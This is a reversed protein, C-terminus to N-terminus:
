ALLSRYLGATRAAIASWTFHAEVRARGARGMAAAGAPDALLASLREAFALAFGEPDAPSGFPDDGPEFAVLHGTEGDVVVEGVGGVASAVVPVGCAMAELNVLGFPEYISPCALVSARTLVQAVEPQPVMRDVWLVRDGLAEVGARVEAAIEPTDPAGALLVLQVEPDLHRAADLLLPLGKQRTVRGVFVVSPRAPDVGMAEAATGGQARWRDPDIGNHIVTVRDPDVAPYCRLVDDRMGASVAIIADAGELGTREAWSSLAYGGGLQEAKWPRLPELSHTTAVHPVDYCRRALDGALSTYWTHSHVLDARAVGAVMALDTALHRLAAVHPGRGDLAEWTGYTAAVRQDDRAAGFCHVAVEAHEALAATLGDVHVGAGGYVEPPFERTLVAVRPRSRAQADMVTAARDGGGPTHSDM